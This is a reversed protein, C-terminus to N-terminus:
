ITEMTKEQDPGPQEIVAPLAQTQRVGIGLRQELLEIERTVDGLSISVSVSPGAKEGYRDRDFKGALRIRTESRLKAVSATESTAGDVIGISEQALADGWIQLAADYEAKLSPTGAIHKAVLSYPLSKSACVEKLTQGEAVRQLLESWSAAESKWEDFAALTKKRM